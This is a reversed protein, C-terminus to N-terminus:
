YRVVYEGRIQEVTRVSSKICSLLSCLLELRNNKSIIIVKLLSM